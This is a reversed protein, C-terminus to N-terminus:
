VVLTMRRVRLGMAGKWRGTRGVHIFATRSPGPVVLPEFRLLFSPSTGLAKPGTVKERDHTARALNFGPLAPLNVQIVFDRLNKIRIM